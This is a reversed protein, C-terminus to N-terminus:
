RMYESMNEYSMVM